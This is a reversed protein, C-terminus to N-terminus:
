DGRLRSDFANAPYVVPSKDALHNPVAQNLDSLIEFFSKEPQRGAIAKRQRKRKMREKTKSGKKRLVADNKNAKWPAVVPATHM